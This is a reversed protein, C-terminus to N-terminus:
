WKRQTITRRTWRLRYRWMDGAHDEVDTNVDDLNKDDRSLCPVTRRTDVCRECVFIGKDERMGNHPVAGALSNRIQQWGQIRSGPSKDVADWYVGEKKMDGAVTKAGDYKSFISSDAPGRKIRGRLGMEKEQTKIQRAIERATMNLGKNEENTGGYYENFLFLDGKVHGYEKGFMTIPTGNSEAWWGVSFPKSQGHDYARNLLWGSKRLLIYPINPIVHTKEDWIDDFMGGSTIDWSGEIWAALEAKNRAAARIKGIYGPDALLLIKNEALSSRIAVRPQEREEEPIDIRTDKIVTGILMGEVMPLQFRKKVWNHGPGYPNTTARVRCLKAVQPHTSRSLSFLPIYCDSNPWTTLEEFGIWPYSNGSIWVCGKQRSVFMHHKELGICYVKGKYHERRVQIKKSIPKGSKQRVDTRLHIDRRSSGRCAVTYSLDKRNNRQRSSINVKLGLKVAIEAMDDALQKSTTFYYYANDKQWSGDGAMAANFFLRLQRVDMDKIIKPVYKDRCKGFPRLHTWWDISYFNFGTKGIGFDIGMRLLLDAIWGRNENKMQAIQVQNSSSTTSGESLFWGMFEAYDDGTVTLPQDKYPTGGWTKEPRPIRPVTIQEVHKGGWYNVSAAITTEFGLSTYEVPKLKGDEQVVAVKHNPTFEMFSGRGEHIVLDGDYDDETKTAVPMPILNRNEDVAYVTDGVKIEKIDRWGTPTLVDGARLCHGHYNWYEGPRMIHRFKLTEGTPWVWTKAQKNYDAKPWIKKFWKLSKSIIDDLEPFTRRFLIGKWEEGFGKGVFQAYDMLLTDTKGGGRNGALLTEFIPCRLTAEQSGAQPFWIAPVGDIYATLMGVDNLRWEVQESM